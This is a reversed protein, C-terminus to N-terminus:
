RPQAQPRAFRADSGHSHKGFVRRDRANASRTASNVTTRSTRSAQARSCAIPAGLPSILFISVEAFIGGGCGVDLVRKGRLWNTNPLERVKVLSDRMFEIRSPNMRHLLGFEGTPDWWHASLASFHAIESDSITNTKRSGTVGDDHRPPTMRPTSLNSRSSSLARGVAAVAPRSPRASLMGAVREATRTRLM